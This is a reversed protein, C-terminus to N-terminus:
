FLEQCAADPNQNILQRVTNLMADCAPVVQATRRNIPGFHTRQIRILTMAYETAFAPCKRSFEQFAAGDGSGLISTARCSAGEKFTDLLCRKPNKRYEDYLKQLEVSAKVSNYSAQFLGAEAEDSARNAGAAVDWGECYKGSSEMMGLGMGVTYTAQVPQQGPLSAAIGVQALVDQYHALVDKRANLSNPARLIPSAPKEITRIRCLSRVFSLTMGKIYGTPSRGRNEWNTQACASKSAIDRIQPGYIPVMPKPLEPVVVPPRHNESPPVNTLAKSEDTTVSIKGPACGVTFFVTALTIVTLGNRVIRSIKTYQEM